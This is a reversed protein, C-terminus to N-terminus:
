RAGTKLHVTKTNSDWSTEGGMHDALARVPIHSEGDIIVLEGVREENIELSPAAPQKPEPPIPLAQGGTLVRKAYVRAEPIRSYLSGPCQTAMYDRHGRLCGSDLDLEWCLWAYLAMFSTVQAATPQHKHLEGMVCIGVNGGNEMYVHAGQTNLPRGEIIEGGPAILFHYGIDSWGQQDMHMAQHERVTQLARAKTMNAPAPSADHHCTVRYYSDSLDGLYSLGGGPRAKWSKRPIITPKPPKTRQVTTM